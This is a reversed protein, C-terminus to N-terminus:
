SEFITSGYSMENPQGFNEYIEFKTKRHPMPLLRVKDIADQAAKRSPYQTAEEVMPSSFRNTVVNFGVLWLNFRTTSEHGGANSILVTFM